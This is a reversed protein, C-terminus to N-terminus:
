MLEMLENETIPKTNEPLEFATFAFWWGIPDEEIYVCRNSIRRVTVIKGCFPRMSEVFRTETKIFGGTVGFEKAMDDWERVRLKQGVYFDKKNM